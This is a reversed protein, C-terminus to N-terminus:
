AAAGREHAEVIADLVEQPVLEPTMTPCVAVVDAEAVRELGHDVHLDFGNSGRIRGPRPGCVAFEFSPAHDEPHEEEGWVECFLGLGFPEVDDTVIAAVNRIM